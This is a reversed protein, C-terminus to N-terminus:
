AEVSIPFYPTFPTDKLLKGKIAIHTHQVQYAYQYNNYIPDADDWIDGSLDANSTTAVALGLQAHLTETLLRQWGLFLEGDVLTHTSNSPVYAKEISPTLYFAQRHGANEWIPGISLTAVFPSAALKNFLAELNNNIPHNNDGTAQVSLSLSALAFFSLANKKILTM